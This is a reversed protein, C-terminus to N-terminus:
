RLRDKIRDLFTKKAHWIYVMAERFEERVDENFLTEMKKYEESERSGFYPDINNYLEDLAQSSKFYLDNLFKREAVLESIDVEDIIKLEMVSNMDTLEVKIDGKIIADYSARTIYKLPNGRLNLEKLNHLDEIGQVTVINNFSLDFRQLECLHSINEIKSIQNGMLVLRDLKKNNHLGKIRRVKCNIMHLERLERLTELNKLEEIPNDGLNLYKLNTLTSLGQIEEINNEVMYLLSLNVLCELNELVSIRNKHLYLVDLTPLNNLGKIKRIMNSSLNLYALLYSNEIHRIVRIKNNDMDIGAVNNNPKGLVDKYENMSKIGAGSLKMYLLGNVESVGNVKINGM